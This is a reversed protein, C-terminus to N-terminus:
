VTVVYSTDAALLTAFEFPGDAVVALDDGGNNQLVLVGGSLGSVTGGVSYIAVCTVIARAGQEALGTNAKVSCRQAPQSPQTGVTIAYSKGQQVQQSFSDTGNGTVALADSGNDVLVLGSGALGSVQVGITVFSPGGGGCAALLLFALSVPFGSAAAGVTSMRSGGRNVAVARVA